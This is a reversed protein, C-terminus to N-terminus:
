NSNKHRLRHVDNEIINLSKRNSSNSIAFRSSTYSNRVDKGFNKIHLTDCSNSKIGMEKNPFNGDNNSNICNVNISFMLSSLQPYTLILKNYIKPGFNLLRLKEM